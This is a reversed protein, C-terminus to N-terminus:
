IFGYQVDGNSFIKNYLLGQGPTKVLNDSPRPLGAPVHGRFALEITAFVRWSKLVFYCFRALFYEAVLSLAHVPNSYM